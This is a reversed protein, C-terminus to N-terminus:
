QMSILSGLNLHIINWYRILKLLPGEQTSPIIRPDVIDRYKAPRMEHTYDRYKIRSIIRVCPLGYGYYGEALCLAGITSAVVKAVRNRPM